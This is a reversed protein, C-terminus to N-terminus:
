GNPNTGKLREILDKTIDMDKPPLGRAAKFLAHLNPNEMIEQAIQATEDNFYYVTGGTSEKPKDKGTILYDVSTDLVDAIKKLKDQKPTSRGNSWDSFTSRPIGTLKAVQYNTLGRADRIKEYYEYM